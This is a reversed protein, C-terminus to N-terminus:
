LAYKNSESNSLINWLAVLTGKKDYEPWIFVNNSLFYLSAIKYLFDYSTMYPNPHALVRAVDSTSDSILATDKKRQVSKLEIKGINRALADISMAIIDLGVLDGRFSKYTWVETNLPIVSTKQTSAGTVDSRKNWFAM